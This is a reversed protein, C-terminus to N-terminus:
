LLFRSGLGLLLLFGLTDTFTTLIISSSVAPDYGFHQLVIPISAGMIGAILLNGVMALFVVFGIMASHNNLVAIIGVITGFCLGNVVGVILEKRVIQFMNSYHVDNLTIHRITVALTQTGANGGMGAIIPMFMALVTIKSVINRYLFVVYGALFATALNIVLWPLRSKLSTMWNYSLKEEEDSVNAIKLMDEGAYHHYFQDVSTDTDLLEGIM